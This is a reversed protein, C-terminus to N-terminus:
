VGRELLAILANKSISESSPVFYKSVPQLMLVLAAELNHVGYSDGFMSSGRPIKRYLELLEAAGKAPAKKAAILWGLYIWGLSSLEPPATSEPGDFMSRQRYRSARQFVPMSELEVFEAAAAQFDKRADPVREGIALSAPAIREFFGWTSPAADNLAEQSGVFAGVLCRALAQAGQISLANNYTGGRYRLWGAQNQATILGSRKLLPVADARELALSLTVGDQSLASALQVLLESPLAAGCSLAESAQNKSQTFTQNLDRSITKPDFVDDLVRVLMWDQLDPLDQPLPGFVLVHAALARRLADAYAGPRQQAYMKLAITRSNGGLVLWLGCVIPPGNGPSPDDNLVLEPRWALVQAHIKAQEGTDRTYDREQLYKPYDRSPNFRHDHSATVSDLPLLAYYASLSRLGRPGPILVSTPAGKFGPSLRPNQPPLTPAHLHKACSARKSRKPNNPDPITCALDARADLGPTADYPRVDLRTAKAKALKPDALFGMTVALSPRERIIWEQPDDHAPATAWIALAESLAAEESRKHAQLARALGFVASAADANRVGRKKLLRAIQAKTQM